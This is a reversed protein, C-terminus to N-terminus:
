DSDKIWSNESLNEEFPMAPGSNTPDEGPVPSISEGLMKPTRLSDQRHREAMMMSRLRGTVVQFRKRLRNTARILERESGFGDELARAVEKWSLREYIRLRIMSRDYYDLKDVLMKLVRKDETNIHLSAGVSSQMASATMQIDSSNANLRSERHHRSRLIDAATNSCIARAWAKCSSKWKFEPWSRWMGECAIQFAEQVADEQRLKVRLLELLEPRYRSVLRDMGLAYEGREWAERISREAPYSSLLESAQLLERMANAEDPGLSEQDLFLRIEASTLSLISVVKVADDKANALRLILDNDLIPDTTTSERSSQSDRGEKKTTM